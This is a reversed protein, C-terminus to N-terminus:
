TFRSEYIEYCPVINICPRAELRGLAPARLPRQLLRCRESAKEAYYRLLLLNLAPVSAALSLAAGSESTINSERSRSLKGRSFPEKLIEYCLAPELQLM